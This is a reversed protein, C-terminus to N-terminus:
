AACLNKRKPLRDSLYPVVSPEFSALSEIRLKAPVPFNKQKLSGGLLRGNLRATSWLQLLSDSRSLNAWRFFKELAKLVLRKQVCM